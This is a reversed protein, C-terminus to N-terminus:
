EAERRGRLRETQSRRGKEDTRSQRAARSPRTSRRKPPDPALADDLLNKLRARAQQRNRWQSRTDDAIVSLAGNSIRTALKDSIRQIEQETFAISEGIDFVIEAGPHARNAHQGGPGGSPGFTWQLEGAPIVHGRALQLDQNAESM